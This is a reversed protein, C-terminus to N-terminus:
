VKKITLSQYEIGLDVRLRSEAKKDGEMARIFIKMLTSISAKSWGDAFHEISDAQIDNFCIKEFDDIFEPLTKEGSKFEDYLKEMKELGKANDVMEIM